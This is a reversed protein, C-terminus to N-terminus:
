GAELTMTRALISGPRPTIVPLPLGCLREAEDRALGLGALAMFMARDATALSGEGSHISEISQMAAGHLLDRAAVPDDFDFWGQERALTMDRELYRKALAGMTGSRRGVRSVFLTFVRSGAVLRLYARTGIAVREAPTDLADLLPDLLSVVEDGLEAVLTALLDQPTQFYKYFTGRAVQAAQVFDDVVAGDPGREAFVTIAAELLRRRMSERRLAASRTRGDVPSKSALTDVLM